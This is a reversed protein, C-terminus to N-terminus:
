VKCSAKNTALLLTLNVPTQGTTCKYSTDNQTMYEDYSYELQRLM